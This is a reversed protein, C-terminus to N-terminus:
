PEHRPPPVPGNWPKVKNRHNASWLEIIKKSISGEKLTACATTSGSTPSPLEEEAQHLHGITFGATIAENVLTPSAIEEDDSEV